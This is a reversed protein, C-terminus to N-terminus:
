RQFCALFFPKGGGAHRESAPDPLRFSTQKSEFSPMCENPIHVDAKVTEHNYKQILPTM